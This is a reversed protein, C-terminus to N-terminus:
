EDGERDDDEDAEESDDSEDGDTEESGDDADSEDFEFELEGERDGDEVVIEVEDADPLTVTLQGDVDTSGVGEDDIEVDAGAVAGDGDTVELTVTAGPALNGSVVDIGLTEEGDEVGDTDDADDEADDADEADDGDEADGEADGTDDADDEADGTDDADDEADGGDEADDEEDDERERDDVDREEVDVEDLALAGDAGVEFELEAEFAGKVLTVDLEDDGTSPAAFSLTGNEGTTGVREGGALVTVDAVGEGDYGVSVTVTGNDVSGDVTLRERIEADAREEASISRLRLELEGEREGDEIEIEVEEDDPLTVTIRGDADTTGVTRDGLEVTAGEVPEGAATVALTVNAGPEAAGDVIGISLPTEDAEDDEDDDRERPELEEELEFVEGTEGDVSVEAEGTTENGVFAFEFEFYGDDEDRDVSRLTWEGDVDTSLSATAAALADSQNVLFTGDGPQDREFERSREGDENEVEISLGNETELTFEGRQVGSYQALLASAGVSTLDALRDRAAENGSRDYGVARLELASVDVARDDLWEFGRDITNARSSLVALRQAYATRSLDGADYAATAERQATVTENAQERLSAAREALLEARESENADEFAAELSAAEVDGSVEDDTIEIITALQQGTTASGNSTASENGDAQAVVGAGGGLDAAGVALAAGPVSGVALGVAVLIALLQTRKM